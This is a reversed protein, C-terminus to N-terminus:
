RSPLARSLRDRDPSVRERSVRKLKGEARPVSEEDVMRAEKRTRTLTASKAQLSARLGLSLAPEAPDVAALGSPTPVANPVDSHWRKESQASEVHSALSIAGIMREFSQWLESSETAHASRCAVTCPQRGGHEGAPVAVQLALLVSVSHVVVPKLWVTEHAPM